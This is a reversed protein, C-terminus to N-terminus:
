GAQSLPVGARAGGAQRDRVGGFRRGGSREFNGALKQAIFPGTGYEGITLLSGRGCQRMDVSFRSAFNVHGARYAAGGARKGGKGAAPCQPSFPAEGGRRAAKRARMSWAILFECGSNARAAYRPAASEWLSPQPTVSGGWGCRHDAMATMRTTEVRSSGVRGGDQELSSM